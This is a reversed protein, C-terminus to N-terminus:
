EKEKNIVIPKYKEASVLEKIQEKLFEMFEFVKKDGDTDVCMERIMNLDAILNTLREILFSKNKWNINRVKENVM